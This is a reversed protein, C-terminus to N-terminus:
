AGPLRRWRRWRIPPASARKRRASRPRLAASDGGKQSTPATHTSDANPWGRRTARLGPSSNNFRCHVGDGKERQWKRSLIGGRQLNGGESRGTGPAPDARLPSASRLRWPTYPPPRCRPPWQLPRAPQRPALLGPEESFCHKMMALILLISLCATNL